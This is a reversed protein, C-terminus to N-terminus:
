FKPTSNLEERESVRKIWDSKTKYLIILYTKEKLEKVAMGKVGDGEKVQGIVPVLGVAFMHTIM